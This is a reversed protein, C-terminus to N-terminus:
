VELLEPSSHVSGIIEKEFCRISHFGLGTKYDKYYKDPILRFEGEEFIVACVGTDFRAMCKVIDGEFIRKGNKDKLGTYQCVTEPIVDDVYKDGYIEHKVEGYPLNSRVYFGYVWFGKIWEGNVFVKEKGNEDPHFGKFLIEHM